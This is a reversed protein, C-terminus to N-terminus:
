VDLFYKLSLFESPSLLFQLNQFLNQVKLTLLREQILGTISFLRINVQIIVLSIRDTMLTLICFFRCNLFKQFNFIVYEIHVYQPKM